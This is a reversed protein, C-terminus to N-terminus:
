FIFDIVSEKKGEVCKNFRAQKFIVNSMYGGGSVMYLEKIYM